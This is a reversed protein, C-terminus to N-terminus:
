WDFSDDLFFGSEDQKSRDTSFRYYGMSQLTDSMIKVFFLPYGSSHFTLHMEQPKKFFLDLLGNDKLMKIVNAVDVRDNTYFDDENAFIIKIFKVHRAYANAGILDKIKDQLLDKQPETTEFGTDSNVENAYLPTLSLLLVLLLRKVM